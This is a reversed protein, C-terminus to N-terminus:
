RRVEASLIFALAESWATAVHDAASELDARPAFLVTRCGARRGAEVDSAKDGVLFSSGLDLGLEAAAAILLGPEPKRCSCGEDPAHPCYRADDVEAGNRKLESIFREHVAAAEEASVLGRAIGSQNSVVVLSFGRRRLEALAEAAGEILHVSEPDNPYGVDRILTGDRDLFVGPKTGNESM